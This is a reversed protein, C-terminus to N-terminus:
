IAVTPNQQGGIIKIDFTATSAAVGDATDASDGDPTEYAWKWYLTKTVPTDIAALAITGTFEVTGEVIAVENQFAADSYFKLNTPMDQFNSLEISYEIAVESGSGDVVINFSGDTGPAIKGDAVKSNLTTDELAITDLTAEGNTATFSWRAVTATGDANVVSIYRAYSWTALIVAAITLLILVVILIVNKKSGKEM